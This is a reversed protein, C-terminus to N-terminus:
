LQTPSGCWATLVTVLRALDGLHIREAATHSYQVPVTLGFVRAGSSEFVSADNGGPMFGYQLECGLAAVKALLRQRVDDPVLMTSDWCRLVPGDGPRVVDYQKSDRPGSGVAFSDVAIVEDCSAFRRALVHSGRLGVEEQVSFALVTPVSPPDRRLEAACLCLACCGFRDDLSRAQVLDGYLRWITKPRGANSM